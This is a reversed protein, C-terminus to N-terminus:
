VMFGSRYTPFAPAWNLKAKILRNSCGLSPRVMQEGPKPEPGNVLTAVYSYLSRASVPEDDVVNFITCAAGEEVAQVVARAM